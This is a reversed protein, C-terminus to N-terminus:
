VLIDHFLIGCSKIRELKKVTCLADNFKSTILGSYDVDAYSFAHNENLSSLYAEFESSASQAPVTESVEIVSSDCAASLEENLAIGTISQQIAAPHNSTM